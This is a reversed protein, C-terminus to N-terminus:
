FLDQFNHTVCNFRNRTDDYHIHNRKRVNYLTSLGINMDFYKPDSLVKKLWAKELCSKFVNVNIRITLLTHIVAKLDKRRSRLSKVKILSSLNVIPTSYILPSFLSQSM